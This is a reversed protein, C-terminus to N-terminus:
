TAGASVTSVTLMEVSLKSASCPIAPPAATLTIVLDPVLSNWPEAKAKCSSWPSCARLKKLEPSLISLWRLM